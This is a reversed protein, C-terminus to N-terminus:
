SLHEYNGQQAIANAITNAVDWEETDDALFLDTGCSQAAENSAKYRLADVAILLFKNDIIAMKFDRKTMLDM